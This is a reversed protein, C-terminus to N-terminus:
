PIEPSKELTVSPILLAVVFVTSLNLRTSLLMISARATISTVEQRIGIRTITKKEQSTLSIKPILMGSGLWSEIVFAFGM